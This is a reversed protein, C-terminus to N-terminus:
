RWQEEIAWAPATEKLNGSRARMRVESKGSECMALVPCWGCLPGPKEPWEDNDIAFKMQDWVSAFEMTTAEMSIPDTPVEDIYGRTSLWIIRAGEAKEDMANNVAVVYLRLQRDKSDRYRMDRKGTKYDNVVVRDGIREIRDIIGTFPVGGVETHLKTETSVVDVKQPDEVNWITLLRAWAERMFLTADEVGAFAGEDAMRRAHDRMSKSAVAVSRVEPDANYLDELASHVLTGMEAAPGPPDDVGFVYKGWWKKPCNIWTDASSPSLRQPLKPDRTKTM